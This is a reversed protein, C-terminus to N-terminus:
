EPIYSSRVLCKPIFWVNKYATLDILNSDCDLFEGKKNKLIVKMEGDKIADIIKLALSDNDLKKNLSGIKTGILDNYLDMATSIKDPLAGDEIRGREFDIYNGKEHAIGLGMVKSPKFHKALLAMWYAHRFADLRGGTRNNDFGNLNM